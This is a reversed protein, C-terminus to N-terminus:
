ESNRTEQSYFQHRHTLVSPFKIEIAFTSWNIIRNFIQSQSTPLLAFFTKKQIAFRIPIFFSLLPATKKFLKMRLGQNRLRMQTATHKNWGREASSNWVYNERYFTKSGRPNRYPGASHLCESSKCKGGLLLWIHNTFCSHFVLAHRLESASTESPDAFHFNFNM